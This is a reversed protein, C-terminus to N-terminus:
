NDNHYIFDSKEEPTEEENYRNYSPLWIDDFVTLPRSDHEIEKRARFRDRAVDPTVLLLVRVDLLPVIIDKFLFVGEIIVVDTNQGSSSIAAIAAEYDISENYYLNLLDPTLAGKIHAEYVKKQVANNNYHDIHLLTARMGKINLLQFLKQAFTTKGACDLGNVGVIVTKQRAVEEIKLILSSIDTVHAYNGGM